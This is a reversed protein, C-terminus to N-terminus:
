LRWWGFDIHEEVEVCPSSDIPPFPSLRPSVAEPKGITNAVAKSAEALIASTDVGDLNANTSVNLCPM